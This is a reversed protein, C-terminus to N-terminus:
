ARGFFSALKSWSGRHDMPSKLQTATNDKVGWLPLRIAAWPLAKPGEAMGSYARFPRALKGYTAMPHNVMGSRTRPSLTSFNTCPKARGKLAKENPSRTGPVNDRAKKSNGRQPVASANCSNGWPTTASDGWASPTRPSSPGGFLLRSNPGHVM